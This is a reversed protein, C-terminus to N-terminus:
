LDCDKCFGEFPKGVHISCYGLEKIDIKKM